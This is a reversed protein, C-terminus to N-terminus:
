EGRKQFTRAIYREKVDWYKAKSVSATTHNSYFKIERMTFGDICDLNVIFSRHTKAFQPYALLVCELQTMVGTEELVASTSLHYYITRGKIEAYELLHLPIRTLGTKCKALICPKNQNYIAVFVKDLISFLQDKRIPKLVYYFADVAYSDVAFEPSSTLFMIKTTKDHTRIEAAAEIGNILPMIIDLLIIEYRNGGEIAAILEIASNFATYIIKYRFINAEKYENIISTINSLESIDDDCIAINIV